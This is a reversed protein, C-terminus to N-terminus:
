RRATRGTPAGRSSSRSKTPRRLCTYLLWPLVGGAVFASGPVTTCGKATKTETAEGTTESSPDEAPPEGTPPPPEGSPPPPEETPPPPPPEETPPPPPEETPPPQEGGSAQQRFRQLAEVFYYDGYILSADIDDGKPKIPTRYFAVGHLLIGPNDSGAALYAPSALSDLMAGAATLYGRAEDPPVYQSLELLASAVIAAASSDKQRQDAPANFDWYPVSDAPLRDLYYKTTKRAAALMRPDRTYRYALTFGYLAWAQGRSWTSSDSYGQFTGKFVIRGETDYDVVHFTGGDARVMDQATKLAHNLAMDNWAPDGGHRAGWFLLELNMMTDTVLAVHWPPDNWDCCDIVRAKANYRSALSAAGELLVDRYSTDGTLQYAHGYSLFLKFGLDHTERNSKQGELPRTWADARTRWVPAQTAEYTLWLLGPFFGQTWGTDDTNSVTRWKGGLSSKPSHTTKLSPDSATRELQRRAFTLTQDAKAKDFAQAPLAGLVGLWGVLLLAPPTHRPRRTWSTDRPLGDM